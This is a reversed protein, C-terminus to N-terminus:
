VRIKTNRPPINIRKKYIADIAGLSVKGLIPIIFSNIIVGRMNINKVTFIGIFANFKLASSLGIIIIVLNYEWFEWM